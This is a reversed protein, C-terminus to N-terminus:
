DEQYEWVGGIFIDTEDEPYLPIEETECIENAKDAAEEASEAEVVLYKVACVNVEIEYKM